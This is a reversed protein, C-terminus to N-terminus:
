WALGQIASAMAWICKPGIKQTEVGQFASLDCAWVRSSDSRFRLGCEEEDSEGIVSYSSRSNKTNKKEEKREALEAGAFVFLPQM